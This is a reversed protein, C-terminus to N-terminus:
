KVFDNISAELSKLYNLSVTQGTLDQLVVFMGASSTTLILFNDYIAYNLSAYPVGINVYRVPQGIFLYTKFIHSTNQFASGSLFLPYIDKVLTTQEWAAMQKEALSKDKIKLILIPRAGEKQAFYALTFQDEYNSLFDGPASIQMMYFFDGATIPKSEYTLKIQKVSSRPEAIKAESELAQLLTSTMEAPLDITISKNPLKNFFKIQPTTTAAPAIPLVATTTTAAPATIAPTKSRVFIKWYGYLGALAVIIVGLGIAALKLWIPATKFQLKREEKEPIKLIPVEPRTEPKKIESIKPTPYIPAAPTIPKPPPPIPTVKKQPIGYIAEESLGSPIPSPAAPAPKEEPKPVIGSLKDLDGKMTRIVVDEKQSQQAQDAM